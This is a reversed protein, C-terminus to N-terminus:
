ELVILGKRFDISFRFLKLFDLGLLGDVFGEEPLDHCAIELNKVTKGLAKIKKIRVLPAIEIGSGTVIRTRKASAAPDCGIAVAIEFPIITRSCGTDL